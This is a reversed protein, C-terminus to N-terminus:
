KPRVWANGWKIRKAKLWHPAQGKFRAYAHQAGRAHGIYYVGCLALRAGATPLVAPLLFAVAELLLFPWTLM